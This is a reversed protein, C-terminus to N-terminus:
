LMSMYVHDIISSVYCVTVNNNYVDDWFRTASFKRALVFTGGVHLCKGMAMYVVIWKLHHKM